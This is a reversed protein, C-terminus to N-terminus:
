YHDHSKFMGLIQYLFICVKARMPTLIGRINPIKPLTLYIIIFRYGTLDEIAELVKSGSLSVYDGYLKAYAKEIQPEQSEQSQLICLSGEKVLLTISNLRTMM